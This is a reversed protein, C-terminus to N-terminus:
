SPLEPQKLLPIKLPIVEANLRRRILELSQKRAHLAARDNINGTSARRAVSKYEHSVVSFLLWDTISVKWAKCVKLCDLVDSFELFLFVKSLFPYIKLRRTLPINPLHVNRLLVYERTDMPLHRHLIGIHYVWIFYEPIVQRWLRCVGICAIIDKKNKPDLLYLFCHRLLDNTDLRVLGSM